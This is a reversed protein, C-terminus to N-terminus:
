YRILVIFYYQNEYVKKLPEKLDISSEIKFKPILLDIENTMGNKNLYTKTFKESIQEINKLDKIKNPMIIVM